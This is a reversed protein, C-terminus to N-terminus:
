RADKVAVFLWDAVLAPRDNDKIEVSVSVTIEVGGADRVRAGGFTFHGRIEAGAPVPEPMRVRNFGFNFMQTDDGAGVGLNGFVQHSFYTLMSMTLFGFSITTGLPANDRAWDPNVHYEDEDKTLRAFATIDEQSVRHWDSAGLETGPQMELFSSFGSSQGNSV